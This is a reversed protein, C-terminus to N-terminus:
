SDKETGFIVNGTGREGNPKCTLTVHAPEIAFRLDAIPFGMKMRCQTRWLRM